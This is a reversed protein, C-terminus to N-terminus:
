RHTSHEVRQLLGLTFIWTGRGQSLTLGLAAGASAGSTAVAHRRHKRSDGVFNRSGQRLHGRQGTCRCERRSELRHCTAPRDRGLPNQMGMGRGCCRRTETASGSLGPASINRTSLVRSAWMCRLRRSCFSSTVLESPSSPLDTIVALRAKAIARRGSRAPEASRPRDAGAWRWWNSESKEGHATDGFPALALKREFIRKYRTSRNAATTERRRGRCRPAWAGAPIQGSRWFAPSQRPWSRNPEQKSAVGINGM